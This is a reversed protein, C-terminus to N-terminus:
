TGTNRSLQPVDNIKKQDPDLVLRFDLDLDPDPDM